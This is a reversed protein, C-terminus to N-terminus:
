ADTKEGVLAEFDVEGQVNFKWKVNEWGKRRKISVEVDNKPKRVATGLKQFARDPVSSGDIDFGMVIAAVLSLIETTAFHRGPCLHKGGGFPFYGQTQQKKQEKDLKAITSPLFRFPNFSNVDPGWISPSNHTVGSPLQIVNGAKLLFSSQSTSSALIVDQTVSRVSTAADAFRLTERFCSMLIPCRSQFLTIDMVCEEIGDEDENKSIINSIETQISSILAPDSLVNVLLWFCTPASNTTALFLTSIEINAIEEATLGWRQSCELRSKILTSATMHNSSAYYSAFATKIARRGHYAKPCIFKPLFELMLMTMNEEFDWLSDILSHNASVPDHPGYLSASTALTLTDRMWKYLSVKGSNQDLKNLIDAVAGLIGKNLELLTGSPGLYEVMLGHNENLYSTGNNGNLFPGKPDYDPSTEGRIIKMGHEGINFARKSSDVVFTTFDFAKTNRYAAQILSPECIVYIRAAFIKLTFVSYLPHKSSLTQFYGVQGKLMGILHGFLPIRSKVEPPETGKTGEKDKRGPRSFLVALGTGLILTIAILLRNVNYDQLRSFLPFVTMASANNFVM